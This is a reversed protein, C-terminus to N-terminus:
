TAFVANLCVPAFENNLSVAVLSSCKIILPFFEDRVLRTICDYRQMPGHRAPTAACTMSVFTLSHLLGVDQFDPFTGRSPSSTTTSGPKLTTKSKISLGM